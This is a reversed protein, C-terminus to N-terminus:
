RGGGRPFGDCSLPWFAVVAKKIADAVEKAPLIDEIGTGKIGPAVNFDIAYPVDGWVFDVAFLPLKILKHYGDPRRGLVGIDVDGCNSRWDNRSTYELWFRKDGAQLYRWAQGQGGPLVPIHEVALHDPYQEVADCLTIKIKGEGRHATEDIHVVVEFLRDFGEFAYKQQLYEFVESTRGFAPVRLGLSKLYVLMERRKDGGDSKREFTLEAGTGDFWHDYYDHFDSILRVKQM